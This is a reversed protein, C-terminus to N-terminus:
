RPSCCSCASPSRQKFLPGAARPPYVYAAGVLAGTILGGIHGQWSIGPISFTLVLNVVVLGVLWRVDLNLRKSAM